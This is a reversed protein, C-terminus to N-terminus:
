KTLVMKLTREFSSQSSSATIYYFYVGSAMNQANVQITYSGATQNSNVLDRVVKGNIDYLKISVSSNIPLQYDIKTSPNFPNPYNQSISFEKPTNVTLNNNSSIENGASLNDSINTVTSSKKINTFDGFTHLNNIGIINNATDRLNILTPLYRSASNMMFNIDQMSSEDTNETFNTNFDSSLYHFSVSYYDFVVGDNTVNWYRKMSITSDHLSPHTTSYTSVTIYGNTSINNFAINVPTYGNLSGIEFNQAKNNNSFYKTLRGIIYGNNVTLSGNETVKTNAQLKCNNLTAGSNINVNNMAITGNGTITQNNGNLEFNVNNNTNLNGNISINGTVSITPTSSLSTNTLIFSSGNNISFNNITSNSSMMENLQLNSHYDLVLNGYTRGNLDLATTDASHLTLTSGSNFIVKASPSNLGFPSKALNNEIFMSSGNEFVVANATGSNTFVYGPVNQTLAAGSHFRISNTDLGNIYHAQGGNIIVNGYISATTGTKLLFGLQPSVGNIELTSGSDVTLDSGTGGNISLVKANGTAPTFIVHTNNTLVLQGITQQQVNLANVTNGSNFILIDSVQGNQRVPSWNAATTFNGSQGGVWHYSTQSFSFNIALLTIITTIKINAKM